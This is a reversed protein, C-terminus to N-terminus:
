RIFFRPHSVRLVNDGLSSVFFIIEFRNEDLIKSKYKYLEFIKNKEHLEFNDKSVLTSDLSDYVVLYYNPKEFLNFKMNFENQIIQYKGKIPSKLDYLHNDIKDLDHAIKNDIKYVIDSLMSLYEGVQDSYFGQKAHEGFEESEDAWTQQALTRIQIEFYKNKDDKIVLHVSRYNQESKRYDYERDLNFNDKIKSIIDNQTKLDQVIIRTGSIDSMRTLDMGHNNPRQLKRIISSTRKLRGAMVFNFNQSTLLESVESSYKILTEDYSKKFQELIEYDNDEQISDRFRKGSKNIQKQSLSTIDLIM